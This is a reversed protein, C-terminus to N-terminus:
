TAIRPHRKMEWMNMEQPGTSRWRMHKHPGGGLFRLWRYWAIQKAEEPTTANAFWTSLDHFDAVALVADPIFDV